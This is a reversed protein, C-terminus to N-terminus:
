VTEAERTLKLAVPSFGRHSHSFGFSPGAKLHSDAVM